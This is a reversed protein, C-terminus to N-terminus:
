RSPRSGIEEASGSSISAVRRSAISTTRVRGIRAERSQGRAPTIPGAPIERAGGDAVGTLDPGHSQVTGVAVEHGVVLGQQVDLPDEGPERGVGVPREAPGTTHDLVRDGGRVGIADVGRVAFLDREGADHRVTGREAPHAVDVDIGRVPAAPDPRPHDAVQAIRVGREFHPPQKERRVVGV